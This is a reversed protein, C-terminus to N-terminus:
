LLRATFSKLDGDDAVAMAASGEEVEEESDEDTVWSGTTEAETTRASKHHM